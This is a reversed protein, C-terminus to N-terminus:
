IHILSLYKAALGAVAARLEAREQTEVFPNPATM